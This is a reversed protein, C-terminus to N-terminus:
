ASIAASKEGGFRNGDCPQSPLRACCRSRCIGSASNPKHMKSLGISPCTAMVISKKRRSARFIDAPAASAAAPPNQHPSNAFAAGISTSVISLTLTPQQDIAGAVDEEPRLLHTPLSTTGAVGLARQVPKPSAPVKAM